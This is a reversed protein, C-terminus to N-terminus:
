FQASNVLAIIRAFTESESQSSTDIVIANQAPKLPSIVRNRDRQDRAELEAKIARLNVHKGEGKLQNYRRNARIESSATLFIKLPADPFVVTGMDRGDAVLGPLCRFQRQKELLAARVLENKALHSAQEAIAGTRIDQTIDEGDLLVHRPGKASDKLFEIAMGSVFSNIKSSTVSVNNLNLYFALIRYLAGSDLYNWALHTALYDSMTGKGVGSEGDLTIVPVGELVSSM